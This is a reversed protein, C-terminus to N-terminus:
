ANWEPFDAKIQPMIKQSFNKKLDNLYKTRIQERTQRKKELSEIEDLTKTLPEFDTAGEGSAEKLKALTKKWNWALPVDINRQELETVLYDWHKEKKLDKFECRGKQLSTKDYGFLLLAKPIGMVKEMNLELQDNTRKIKKKSLDKSFAKNRDTLSIEISEFMEQFPVKGMKREIANKKAHRELALNCTQEKSAKGRAKIDSEKKYTEGKDAKERIMQRITRNVIEKRLNTGIAAITSRQDDRQGHMVCETVTKVASEVMHTTAPLAAYVRKYLNRLRRSENSNNNWIDNSAIHAVGSMKINETIHKNPITDPERLADKFTEIDFKEKIFKRYGKMNMTRKLIPHFFEEEEDEDDDIGRMIDSVVKGCPKEDFLALFLLKNQDRYPHFDIQHLKDRTIKFFQNAKTEQASSEEETLKKFPIDELSTINGMQKIDLYVKGDKDKTTPYVVNDSRINELDRLFPQFKENAKWGNNGLQKLEQDMLFFCSLLMRITFGPTGGVREDGRQLTELWPHLFKEVFSTMLLADSLVVGELTLPFAGIAIKVEKKTEDKTSSRSKIIHIIMLRLLVRNYVYLAAGKGLTWWRSEIPEQLLPFKDVTRNQSDKIELSHKQAIDNALIAFPEVGYAQQLDYIAHILQVANRNGLKGVGIVKQFAESFMCNLGHLACLAIIAWLAFLNIKIMERKLSEGTRGGGADSGGGQFQFNPPPYLRKTSHKAAEATDESYGTCKEIDLIYTRVKKAEVDDYWSIVKVLNGNQGKDSNFYVAGARLILERILINTKVAERAELNAFTSYSPTTNAVDRTTLSRENTDSGSPLIDYGAEYLGALRFVAAISELKQFSLKPSLLSAYGQLSRHLEDVGRFQKMQGRHKLNVFSDNNNQLKSLKSKGVVQHCNSVRELNREKCLKEVFSKSLHMKSCNCDEKDFTCLTSEDLVGGPDNSTQIPMYEYQNLSSAQSDFTSTQDHMDLVAGLDNSTQMPMFEYQNLAAQSDFTFRSETTREECTLSSCSYCPCSSCSSCSSKCAPTAPAPPVPPNASPSFIRTSVKTKVGFSNGEEKFVLTANCTVDAPHPKEKKKTKMIACFGISQGTGFGFLDDSTSTEAQFPVKM